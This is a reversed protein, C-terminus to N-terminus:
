KQKTGRMFALRIDTDGIGAKRNLIEFITVWVKKTEGETFGFNHGEKRMKGVLEGLREVCKDAYGYIEKDTM